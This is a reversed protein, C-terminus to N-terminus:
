HQAYALLWALYIICDHLHARGLDWLALIGQRSIAGQLTSRDKRPSAFVDCLLASLYSPQDVLEVPINGWFRLDIGYKPRGM